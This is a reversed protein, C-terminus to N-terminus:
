DNDNDNDDDDDGADRGRHHRRYRHSGPKTEADRFDGHAVFDVDFDLRDALFMDTLGMKWVITHGYKDSWVTPHVLRGHVRLPAIREISGPLWLTFTYTHDGFMSHLVDRGLHEDDEDRDRRADNVHFSRHFNVEVGGLGLLKKGKVRLGITEDSLHLDSLDHFAVESTEVTTDGKRTVRTVARDDGIDIDARHKRLGAGVIGDASVIVDYVGSGDHRIAMKQELDFCGSLGGALIVVAAASLAKKPGFHAFNM